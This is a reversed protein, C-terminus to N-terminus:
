RRKKKAKKKAKKAAKKPKKKAKKAKKKKMPATGSSESLEEIEIMMLDLKPAIEELSVLLRDLWSAILENDAFEGKKYIDKRIMKLEEKFEKITKVVVGGIM